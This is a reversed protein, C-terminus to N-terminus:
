VVVVVWRVVVDSVEELELKVVVRFGIVLKYRLGREKM